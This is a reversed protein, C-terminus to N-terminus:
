PQLIEQELTQVSMFSILIRAWIDYECHLCSHIKWYSAVVFGVPNDGLIGFQEKGPLIICM